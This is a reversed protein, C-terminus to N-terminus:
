SGGHWALAYYWARCADLSDLCVALGQRVSGVERILAAQQVTPRGGPRKLELLGITGRHTVVILDLKKRKGEWKYTIGGHTKVWSRFQNELDIELSIPM